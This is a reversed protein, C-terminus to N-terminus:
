SFCPCILEQAVVMVPADFSAFPLVVGATPVLDIVFKKLRMGGGTSPLVAFFALSALAKRAVVGSEASAMSRVPSLGITSAMGRFRCRCSGGTARRGGAGRGAAGTGRERGAESCCCGLLLAADTDWTLSEYRVPPPEWIVACCPWERPAIVLLLWMLAVCGPAPADDMLILAAESSSALLGGNLSSCTHRVRSDHSAGSGEDAAHFGQSQADAAGHNNALPPSELGTCSRAWEGREM